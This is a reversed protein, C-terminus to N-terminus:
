MPWLYHGDLDSGVIGKVRRTRHLTHHSILDENEGPGYGRKGPHPRCCFRALLILRLFPSGRVRVECTPLGRSRNYRGTRLRDDKTTQTPLWFVIAAGCSYVSLKRNPQVSFSM